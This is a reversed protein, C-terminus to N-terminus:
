QSIGLPRIVLLTEIKLQQLRDDTTPKPEIFETPM